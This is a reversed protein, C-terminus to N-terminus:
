RSSGFVRRLLETTRAAPNARIKKEEEGLTSFLGDVAKGTVYQDLDFGPPNTFPITKYTKMMNKYVRTAGVDDLSKAVVPNFANYIKAATKAKFYETAATDGGKLIQRADAFTMEKIAGVFFGVATPAAKEAARNMSLVFDDVQRQFGIQALMDAVNRMKEPMLVKILQNGFYGNQQSVVKVARETGISLAEKLGKVITPEDLVDQNVALGFDNALNQLMLDQCSTLLLLAAALCCLLGIRM